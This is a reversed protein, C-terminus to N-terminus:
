WKPNGEADLFQDTVDVWHLESNYMRGAAQYIRVRTLEYQFRGKLALKVHGKNVYPRARQSGAIFYITAPLRPENVM